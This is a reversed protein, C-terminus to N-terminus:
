YFGAFTAAATVCVIFSPTSSLSEIAEFVANAFDAGLGKEQQEYWEAADVIDALADSRIHLQYTM